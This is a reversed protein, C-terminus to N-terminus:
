MLEMNPANGNMSLERFIEEGFFLHERGTNQDKLAYGDERFIVTCPYEVDGVCYLVTRGVIAKAGM